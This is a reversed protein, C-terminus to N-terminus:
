LRLESICIVRCNWSDKFTTANLNCWISFRTLVWHPTIIQAMLNWSLWLEREQEIPLIYLGRSISFNSAHIYCQCEQTQLIEQGCVKLINRSGSHARRCNWSQLLKGQRTGDTVKKWIRFESSSHSRSVKWSFSACAVVCFNWSTSQTSINLTVTQFNFYIVKRSGRKRNPVLKPSCWCQSTM